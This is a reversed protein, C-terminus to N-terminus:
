IRNALLGKVAWLLAPWIGPQTQDRKTNGDNLWKQRFTLTREWVTEIKAKAWKKFAEFKEIIEIVTEDENMGAPPGM